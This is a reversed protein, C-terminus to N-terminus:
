TGEANTINSVDVLYVGRKGSHSSDFCVERNDHRLRPHFDCRLEDVFGPSSHFQAVPYTKGGIMDRLVIRGKKETSQYTDTLLWRGDQSFSCHGDEKPLGEGAPIAKGTSVDLFWYAPVNSELAAWVILTDDDRWGFHSCVGSDILCRLESGDANVIFLRSFMGAFSRGTLLRYISGLGRRIGRKWSRTGVESGIRAVSSWTGAQLRCRHLFVLKTGTPNFTAHNFWHVRDKFFRRFEYRAVQDVSVALEQRGERLSGIFLGDQDPQSVHSYPDTAGAYGYGPRLSALRSFSLSATTDGDGALDYIPFPIRAIEVGDYDVVRAVFCSRDRDNFLLNGSDLWRLMCGQQWNWARTKALTKGNKGSGMDQVIIRAEDEAGPSRNCFPVNLFTIRSFDKSWPSKDYYGFFSHGDVLSVQHAHMVMSMQESDAVSAGTGM